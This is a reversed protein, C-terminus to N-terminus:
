RCSLHLPARGAAILISCLLSCAPLCAANSRAKPLRPNLPRQLQGPRQPPPGVAAAPARPPPLLCRRPCPRASRPQDADRADCSRLGLPHCCAAQCITLLSACCGSFGPRDLMTPDACAPAAARVQTRRRSWWAASLQPWCTWLWCRRRSPVGCTTSCPALRPALTRVLRPADAPGAPPRNQQASAAQQRAVGPLLPAAAASEGAPGGARHLM